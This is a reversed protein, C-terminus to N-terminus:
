RCGPDPPSPDKSPPRELAALICEARARWTNDRAVRDLITRYAPDTRLALAEDLRAVFGAADGALLVGEYRGTERMPTAVVPRGAAMYEFLKLPSTAHTIRNLRFPITTVEFYRVYRPLEAYPRPGLWWVNDEALLRSSPLSGDHDPGILVFSLGPRRRAVEALLPYDFWEALAGYYGVVPRGLSLIGEMDRPPPIDLEARPASFHAYDVGNPCYLSDPRTTRVEQHLSRATALVLEAKELLWDHSLRLEEKRFPFVELADIHDYVIRPFRFAQLRHRNWCLAFVVAERLFGFAEVPVNAVYLRDGKADLGLPGLSHDPEVYFVLAGRRALADALHQPRQFLPLDWEVGPAFVVVPGAEPHRAIADRIEPVFDAAAAVRLAFRMHALRVRAARPVWRQWLWRLRGGELRGLGRRITRAWHRRSSGLPFARRGLRRVGVACLRAAKWAGGAHEGPVGPSRITEM